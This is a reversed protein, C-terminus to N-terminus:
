RFDAVQSLQPGRWVLKKKAFWGLFLVARLGSTEGVLDSAVLLM